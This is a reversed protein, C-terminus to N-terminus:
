NNGVCTNAGQPKQDCSNQHGTMCTTREPHKKCWETCSIKGEPCMAKTKKAADSPQISTALIVMVLSAILLVLRM